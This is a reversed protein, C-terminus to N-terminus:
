AQPPLGELSWRINFVQLRRFFQSEVMGDNASECTDDVTNMALTEDCDTGFFALRLDGVFYLFDYFSAIVLYPNVLRM